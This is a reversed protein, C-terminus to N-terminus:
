VATRHIGKITFCILILKFSIGFLALVAFAYLSNQFTDVLGVVISLTLMFLKGEQPKSLKLPYIWHVEGLGFTSQLLGAISVQAHTYISINKTRIYAPM